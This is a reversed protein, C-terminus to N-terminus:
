ESLHILVQYLKPKVIDKFDVLINSPLDNDRVGDRGFCDLYRYFFGKLVEGSVYKPIGTNVWEESQNEYIPTSMYSALSDFTPDYDDLEEGDIEQVVTALIDSYIGDRAVLIECRDREFDEHKFQSIIYGIYARASIFTNLISGEDWILDMDEALNVPRRENQWEYIKEVPISM